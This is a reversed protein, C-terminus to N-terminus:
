ALLQSKLVMCFVKQTSLLKVPESLDNWLSLILASFFKKRCIATKTKPKDQARVFYSWVRNLVCVRALVKSGPWQPINTSNWEASQLCLIPIQVTSHIIHFGTFSFFLWNHLRKQCLWNQLSSYNGKGKEVFAAFRIFHYFHHSCNPIM